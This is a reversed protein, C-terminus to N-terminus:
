SSIWKEFEGPRDNARNVSKISHYKHIVFGMYSGIWRSSLNQFSCGGWDQHSTTIFNLLCVPLYHCSFDRKCTCSLFKISKNDPTIGPRDRFHNEPSRTEDEMFFTDESHLIPFPSKLRERIEDNTTSQKANIFPVTFVFEPMTLKALEKCYNVSLMCDSKWIMVHDQPTLNESCWKVITNIDGALNKPTEPDYDFLVVKNVFSINFSNYIELLKDNSLEHQHTNYLILKDFTVPDQSNALSEFAMTAHEEGLTAHTIFFIVRM